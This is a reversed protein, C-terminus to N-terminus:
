CEKIHFVQLVTGVIVLLYGIEHWTLKQKDKKKLAEQESELFIYTISSPPKGTCRLIVLRAM